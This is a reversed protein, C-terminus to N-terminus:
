QLCQMLCNFPTPSWPDFGVNNNFAKSPVLILLSISQLSSELSHILSLTSLHILKITLLTHFQLMLYLICQQVWKIRKIKLSYGIYFSTTTILVHTREIAWRCSLINKILKNRGNIKKGWHPLNTPNLSMDGVGLAERTLYEMLEHNCLISSIYAIDM